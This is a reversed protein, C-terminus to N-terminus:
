QRDVLGVGFALVAQQDILPLACKSSTLLADIDSM